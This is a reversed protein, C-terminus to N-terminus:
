SASPSSGEKRNTLEPCGLEVEPAPPVAGKRECVFATLIISIPFWDRAFADHKRM